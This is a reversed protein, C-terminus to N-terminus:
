RRKARVVVRESMQVPHLACFFRYTGPRRFRKSFSRDQDLNRSALGV